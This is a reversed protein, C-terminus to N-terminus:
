LIMTRQNRDIYRVIVHARPLGKKDIEAMVSAFTKGSARVREQYVAVWQKPYQDILRPQDSSLVQATKRYSQLDRDVDKPDGLLELVAKASDDV